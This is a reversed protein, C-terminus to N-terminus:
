PSVPRLTSVAIVHGDADLAIVCWTSDPTLIPGGHGEERGPVAGLEISTEIGEWAWVADGDANQVVLRYASSGDVSRWEFKPIKGAGTTGPAVLEVKADLGPANIPTGSQEAGICGTLTLVMAVVAVTVFRMPRYM